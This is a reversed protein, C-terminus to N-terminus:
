RCLELATMAYCTCLFASDEMWRSNKDNVWSGDAQQVKELHARLEKRWDIERPAGNTTVKLTDVGAAALAQAMVMYYYYLGQYKVKEEAKPDSGPNAELTWNDQLWKVAAQVRSDNGTVGALTYSKLLAYTMSGYSRPVAKGDPQVIYGAASNGPYYGAGGDDGSTADLMVGDRDPDPVKESFDNVSKLNQTRQLFVVAKEFAEHNTPLGTARLAEIAFHVNSLDGRQSSGYGISGYDRDGRQYGSSEINQFGLIARQAKLLAAKIAPGDHRSLAGVAVCTTYNPLYEAFTGDDRQQALLWQLGAEIAAQEGATRLAKPKTQLALLGFSTLAPDVVTQDGRKMPFTGDKQRSWLWGFAKHQAASFTAPPAAAPAPEPAPAPNDLMRNAVQCAVLEVLLDAAAERDLTAPKAAVWERVTKQSAGGIQQPFVDPRVAALVRSVAGDFGLTKGTAADLTKVATAVEDVFGDPDIVRLAEITWATATADGFTGDARRNKILFEISPRVVPGDSKHYRRHCHGMATLIKATAVVSDGGLASAEGQRASDRILGILKDVDDKFITGKARTPGQAICLASCVILGSLCGLLRNM